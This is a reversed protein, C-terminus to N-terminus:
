IMNRTETVMDGVTEKRYLNIKITKTQNMSIIEVIMALRMM